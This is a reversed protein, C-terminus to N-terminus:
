EGAVRLNVDRTDTMICGGETFAVEVTYVGSDADSVDHLTVGDEPHFTVHKTEDRVVM